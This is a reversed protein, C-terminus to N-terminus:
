LVRLEASHASLPLSSLSLFPSLRADGVHEKIEEIPPTNERGARERERERGACVRERKVCVCVYCVCMREKSVISDSKRRSLRHPLPPPRARPQGPRCLASPPFATLRLPTVRSLFPGTVTHTITRNHTYTHAYMLFRLSPSSLNLLLLFSIQLLSAPCPSFRIQARIHTHMHTLTHACTVKHSITHTHRHTHTCRSLSSRPTSKKVSLYLQVAKFLLMVLSALAAAGVISALLAM